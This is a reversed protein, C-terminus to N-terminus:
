MLARKRNVQHHQYMVLGIGSGLIRAGDMTKPVTANEEKLLELIAGDVSSTLRTTSNARTSNALPTTSKALANNALPAVTVLWRM